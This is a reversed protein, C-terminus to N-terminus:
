QLFIHLSPSLLFSPYPSLWVTSPVWTHCVCWIGLLDILFLSTSRKCYCDDCERTAEILMQSLLMSLCFESDLCIFGVVRHATSLLVVRVLVAQIAGGLRLHRQGRHGGQLESMCLMRPSVQTRWGGPLVSVASNTEQSQDEGHHEPDLCLIRWPSGASSHQVGHPTRYQGTNHALHHQTHQGRKTATVCDSVAAGSEAQRSDAIIDDVEWSGLGAKELWLVGRAWVRM